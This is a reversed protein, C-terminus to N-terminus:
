CCKLKFACGKKGATLVSMQEARQGPSAQVRKKAKAYIKKKAKEM